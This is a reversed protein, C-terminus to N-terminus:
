VKVPKKALKRQLTRRHMGLARATASVNNGNEALVRQLHEWGLRSVSLPRAALAAEADGNERQFAAVIADADAPKALYYTAGLKIAEVATAISAFGTLVLIRIRPRLAKFAKVLNLGSADPLKLDVVAYDYATTRAAALASEGDLAFEAAYGRRNLARILVGCFIADDDVVLLSPTSIM